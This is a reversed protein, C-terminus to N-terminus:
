RMGRQSRAGHGPLRRQDRAAAYPHKAARLEALRRQQETVRALPLQSRKSSM